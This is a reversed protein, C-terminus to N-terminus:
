VCEDMRDMAKDPPDEQKEQKEHEHGELLLSM